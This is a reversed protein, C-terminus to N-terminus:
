DDDNLRDWFTKRVVKVWGEFDRATVLCRRGNDISVFAINNETDISQIDIPQDDKTTWEEGVEAPIPGPNPRETWQLLLERVYIRRSGADALVEAHPPNAGLHVERVLVTCGKQYWFSSVKPAVSEPLPTWNALFDHFLIEILVPSNGSLQVKLIQGTDTYTSLERIDEATVDAWLSSISPLSSWAVYDSALDEPTAEVVGGSGVLAIHGDQEGCHTFITSDSRRIVRARHAMRFILISFPNPTELARVGCYTTDRGGPAGRTVVDTPSASRNDTVVSSWMSAAIYLTDADMGRKRAEKVANTVAISFRSPQLNHIVQWLAHCRPCTRSQRDSDNLSLTCTPCEQLGEGARQADQLEQGTVPALSGEVHRVCRWSTGELFFAREACGVESCPYHGVTQVAPDYNWNLRLSRIPVAATRGNRAALWVAEGDVQTIVGVTTRGDPGRNTWTEGVEPQEAPV